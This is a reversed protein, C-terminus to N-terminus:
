ALVTARLTNNPNVPIMLPASQTLVYTASPDENKWMKPFAPYPQYTADSDLIAGFARVGNVAPGTMIVDKSSMFPVVDGAANQYYDNYVYVDLNGSLRGMYEVDTGERVGTTLNANTGRVQTNLQALVGANKSMVDWVDVGVTIRNMVGGFKARHGKIRWANIDAIIDSTTTWYTGSTLAITHGADRGFDVLQEPYDEGSITVKGYIVAQAALWENRRNVANLHENLIDALIANYRSVPTSQVGALEGPARRLMRSPSVTDKSKIYAPKFRQVTSGQSMIPKGMATPAVFPALKRLTTVKEFDIHETDFTVTSPFCLDLWYNSVPPMQKMVGLLTKTDYLSVAITM